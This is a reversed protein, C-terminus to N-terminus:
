FHIEKDGNLKALLGKLGSDVGGGEGKKELKRGNFLKFAM